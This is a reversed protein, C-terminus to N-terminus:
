DPLILTGSGHATFIELLIAHAQRGDLIVAAEAGSEIAQICTEVKPIMGATIVGKQMLHRAESVRLESRLQGAEDLIGSVNTLLLLRRAAVAGAIAGAFTDGNINYTEGDIGMAVPAIVPILPSNDLANLILPDLKEPIGVFGLDIEQATQTAPDIKTAMHKRAKLLGGDKGSLGIAYGGANQIEMVIKKNIKGCLVMEVIEMSPADTVRLGDVFHSKQALRALMKEIQPGGGHVVIPLVGCQRLLVIDRAFHAALSENGMAHGGYKIVLKQNNYRRMFPLAETLIGAQSLWEARRRRRDELMPPKQGEPQPAKPDQSTM